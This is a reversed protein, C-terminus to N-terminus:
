RCGGAAKLDARLEVTAHAVRLAGFHRGMAVTATRPDGSFGEANVPGNGDQTIDGVHIKDMRVRDPAVAMTEATDWLGGHGGAIHGGARIEDEIETRSRTYGEAVYFIRINAPAFEKDLRAALEALPKQSPGHDSMLAIRRFGGAILSRTVEENVASFTAPNLSITGALGEVKAPNPAFPLSPAVLADGIGHAIAQAYANVRSAHKGLALHPGTEETGGGFLLVVPCGHDIRAKLETTTYDELMVSHPKPPTASAPPLLATPAKNPANQAPAPISQAAAAAPLALAMLLGCSASGAVPWVKTIM